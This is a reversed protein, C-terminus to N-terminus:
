GNELRWAILPAVTTGVAFRNLDLSKLLSEPNPDSIPNFAASTPKQGARRDNADVLQVTVRV